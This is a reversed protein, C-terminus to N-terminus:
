PNPMAGCISTGFFMVSSLVFSARRGYNDALAAWGFSGIVTGTLASFPLWGVIQQNIHYEVRMGPTGFGLSAPKMVDIILALALLAATNWHAASLPAGDPASMAADTAAAAPHGTRSVPLLGYAAFAIGAVIFAMGWYMYADMPMDALVYATHRAMVFMPLHLIVGLTVLTSGFWFVGVGRRQSLIASTMPM